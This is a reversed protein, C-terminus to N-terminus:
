LRAQDEATKSEERLKTVVDNYVNYTHEESDFDLLWPERQLKVVEPHKKVYDIDAKHWKDRTTEGTKQAKIVREYRIKEYAQLAERVNAPGGCKELCVALTVGDEM